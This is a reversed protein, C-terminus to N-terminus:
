RLFAEFGGSIDTFCNPSNVSKSPMPCNAHRTRCYLDPHFRLDAVNPSKLWRSSGPEGRLIATRCALASPSRMTMKGANPAILSVYGSASNIRSALGQTFSNRDV